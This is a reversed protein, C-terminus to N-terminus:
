NNKYLHSKIAIKSPRPIQLDNYHLHIYLFIKTKHM